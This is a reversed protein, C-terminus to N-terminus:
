AWVDEKLRAESQLSDLFEDCKVMDWSYKSRLMKITEESVPGGIDLCYKLAIM